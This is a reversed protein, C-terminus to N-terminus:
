SKQLSEWPNSTLDPLDGVIASTSPTSGGPPPPPPPPPPSTLFTYKSSSAQQQSNNAAQLKAKKADAVSKELSKFYEEQQKNRQKEYREVQWEIPVPRNAFERKKKEKEMEIEGATKFGATMRTM